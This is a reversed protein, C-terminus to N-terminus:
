SLSFGGLPFIEKKLQLYSRSRSLPLDHGHIIDLSMVPCNWSFSFWGSPLKREQLCSNGRLGPLLPDSDRRIMTIIHFMISDLIIMDVYLRYGHGMRSGHDVIWSGHDCGNRDHSLSHDVVMIWSCSSSWSSSSASPYVTGGLGWFNPHASISLTLLPFLFSPQFDLCAHFTLVPDYICPCACFNLHIVNFIFCLFIKM